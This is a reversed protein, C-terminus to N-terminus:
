SILVGLAIDTLISKHTDARSPIITTIGAGMVFGYMRAGSFFDRAAITFIKVFINGIEINHLLLIDPILNYDIEDFSRLYGGEGLFFDSLSLGDVLNCGPLESKEFAERIKAADSISELDDELEQRACLIGVKPYQYGLRNFLEVCNKIIEIKQKIDPAVTVGPDSIGIIKPLMPFHLLGVGCIQKKIGGNSSARILSKYLFSGDIFGRLIFDTEGSVALQVGRDAM